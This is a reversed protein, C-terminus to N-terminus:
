EVRLSPPITDPSVSPVALVNLISMASIWVILLALHGKDGRLFAGTGSLVIMCGALIASVPTTRGGGALDGDVTTGATLLALLFHMALCVFFSTRLRGMASTPSGLSVGTGPVLVYSALFLLSTAVIWTLIGGLSIARSDHLMTWILMWWGIQTLILAVCWGAIIWDRLVRHEAIIFAGIGSMVRAISLGLVIAMLASSYEFATM